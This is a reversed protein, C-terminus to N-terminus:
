RVRGFAADGLELSDEALDLFRYGFHVTPQLSDTYSVAVSDITRSWTCPRSTVRLIGELESFSTDAQACSSDAIFAWVTSRRQV